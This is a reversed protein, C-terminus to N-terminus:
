TQGRVRSGAFPARFFPGLVCVHLAGDAFVVAGAVILVIHATGGAAWLGVGALVLGAIIHLWCGAPDAM